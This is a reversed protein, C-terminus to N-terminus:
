FFNGDIEFFDLVGIFEMFGLFHWFKRSNGHTEERTEEV